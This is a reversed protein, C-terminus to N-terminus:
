TTETIRPQFPPEPEWGLSSLGQIAQQGSAGSTALSELMTPPLCPSKAYTGLTGNPNPAQLVKHTAQGQLPICHYKPCTIERSHVEAIYDCLSADM